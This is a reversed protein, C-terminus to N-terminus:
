SPQPNALASPLGAARSALEAHALRLAESKRDLEARLIDSWGLASLRAQDLRQAQVREQKLQLELDANMALVKVVSDRLAAAKQDLHVLQNAIQAMDQQGSSARGEVSQMRGIDRGYAGLVLRMLRDQRLLEARVELLNLGKPNDLTNQLKQTPPAIPGASLFAHLSTQIKASALRWRQEIRRIRDMRHRFDQKQLQKMEIFGCWVGVSSKIKFIQDISLHQSGM